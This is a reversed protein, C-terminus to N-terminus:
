PKLEPNNGEIQFIFGIINMNPNLTAFKLHISQSTGNNLNAGLTDTKWEDSFLLQPLVNGYESHWAWILPLEIVTGDELIAYLKVQDIYSHTQPHEVLRLLYAGDVCQPTTVLTHNYVVDIGDPNHIDLLGECLYETGNYVYLIPCGEGGGGSSSVTVSFSYQGEGSYIYIRIRWFGSADATYSVTDTYGAGLTSSSKLSGYPDYLQLNFDVSSPPTMSVYIIQGSEAYFQYWDATDTPNSEYLTGKYSSPTISTAASFSNGADIGKGADNQSISVVLGSSWGSWLGYVDQARVQVQYMGPRSWSHSVSGTAGSAYWGTLTNGTGDGWSFEYRVNDGDPDVTSTSYAYATYV